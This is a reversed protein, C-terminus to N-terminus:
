NRIKLTDGVKAQEKFKSNIGKVTVTSKSIDPIGFKIQGIGEKALDQPRELPISGTIRCFFGMIKQTYIVMSTFYGM